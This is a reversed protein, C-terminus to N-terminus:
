TAASAGEVPTVHTTCSFPPPRQHRENAPAGGPLLV